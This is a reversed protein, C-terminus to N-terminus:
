HYGVHDQQCLTRVDEWRRGNLWTAAHPIFQGDDKRWDPSTSQSRVASLLTDLLERSPALKAFAKVAAQKAAKRPYAQWFEPFGDPEAGASRARASREPAPPKPTYKEESTPTPTPTPTSSVQQDGTVAENTVGTYHTVAAIPATAAARFAAVRKANKERKSCMALVHEALTNHYLRGDAALWWGRMLIDRHARFQRADMGLRAAIMADDNPLSGCPVQRWAVALLMLLWPRVEAGALLWTDSRDLRELDLDLRWGKANTDAPFPAPPASTSAVVRLDRQASM